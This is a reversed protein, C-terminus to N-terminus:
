AARGTPHSDPDEDNSAPSPTITALTASDNRFWGTLSWRVRRAPLVSHPILDSRFIAVRGFRPLVRRLEQQADQPDYLCLEGGDGQAWDRNLYLVFSIKRHPQGHHQDLHRRYGAGPEYRAFHFESRRLGLFFYRNLCQQLQDAWAQFDHYVSGASEPELWCITDGRVSVDRVPQRTSGVRAERFGGQQWVLRSTSRLNELIADPILDDVIAWGQSELDAFVLEYKHPILMIANAQHLRNFLPEQVRRLRPM